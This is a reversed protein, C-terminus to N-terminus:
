PKGADDVDRRRYEVLYDYIEKGCYPCQDAEYFDFEDHKHQGTAKFYLEDDSLVIMPINTMCDVTVGVEGRLIAERLESCCASQFLGDTRIVTQGLPNTELLERQIQDLRNKLEKEKAAFDGKRYQVADYALNYATVFDGKSEADAIKKSIEDATGLRKIYAQESECYEREPDM